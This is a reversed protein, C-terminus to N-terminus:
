WKYWFRGKSMSRALNMRRGDGKQDEWQSNGMLLAYANRIDKLRTAHLGLLLNRYKM